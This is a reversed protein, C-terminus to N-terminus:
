CDAERPHGFAEDFSVEGDESLHGVLQDLLLGFFAPLFFLYTGGKPPPSTCAHEAVVSVLLNNFTKRTLASIFTMILLCLCNVSLINCDVVAEFYLFKLEAMPLAKVMSTRREIHVDEPIMTTM